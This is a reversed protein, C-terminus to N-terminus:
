RTIFKKVCKLISNRKLYYFFIISLLFIHRRKVHEGLRMLWIAAMMKNSYTIPKPNSKVSGDWKYVSSEGKDRIINYRENTLQYACEKYTLSPICNIDGSHEDGTNIIVTNKDIKYFSSAFGGDIGIKNNPLPEVHSCYFPIHFSAHLTNRVEENNKWQCIITHKKFFTTIGVFLRGNLKLYDKENQFM